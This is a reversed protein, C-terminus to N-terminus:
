AYCAASMPDRELIRVIETGINSMHYNLMDSFGEDRGVLAREKDLSQALASRPDLESGADGEDDSNLGHSMLLVESSTSASNRAETKTPSSDVLARQLSKWVKTQRVGTVCLSQSDQEIRDVCSRRRPRRFVPCSAPGDEEEEEFSHKEKIDPLAGSKSREHTLPQGSYSSRRRRIPLTPGEPCSAAKAVLLPHQLVGLLRATAAPLPATGQCGDQHDESSSLGRTVIDGFLCADDILTAQASASAQGRRGAPTFPSGGKPLTGCRWCMELGPMAMTGCSCVVPGSPSPSPEDAAGGAAAAAEAPDEVDSPKAPQGATRGAPSCAALRPRMLRTPTLEDPLAPQGDADPSPAAAAPREPVHPKSSQRAWEHELATPIDVRGEKEKVLLKGVLDCAGPSFFDPLRLDVNTIRQIAKARRSERFPPINALMEYLLIGLAWVDVRHDHPESNVMEPSLYDWTGCFTLRPTSDEQSSLEACWGFDALKAAGGECMLINEPKVDRHIFGRAHLHGLASAIGAFHTAAKPEELRGHKRLLGFLSGGAAFELLLYTSESDEFCSHLEIINPHKVLFQSKVERELYGLMGQDTVKQKCITKLAFISGTSIHLVKTVEGFTGGGLRSGVTQFDELEYKQASTPMTGSSVTPVVPVSDDTLIAM